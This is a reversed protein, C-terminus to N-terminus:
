YIDKLIDDVFPDEFLFGACEDLDVGGDCSDCGVGYGVIRNSEQFSKNNRGSFHNRTSSSSKDSVLGMQCMGMVENDNMNQVNTTTVKQHLSQSGGLGSINETPVSSESMEQKQQDLEKPISNSFCANPEQNTPMLNTM